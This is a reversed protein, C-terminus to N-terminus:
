QRYHGFTAVFEGNASAPTLAKCFIRDTVYQSGQEMGAIADDLASQQNLNAQKEVLSMNPEMGFLATDGTLHKIAVKRTDSGDKQLERALTQLTATTSALKAGMLMCSFAFLMLADAAGDLKNTKPDYGSRNLSNKMREKLVKASAKNESPRYPKCIATVRGTQSANRRYQAPTTAPPIDWYVLDGNQIRDPGNNCITYLGGFIGTFEPHRPENGKTDFKAGQGGAIGAFTLNEIIASRSGKMGNLASFATIMNSGVGGRRRGTTKIKTALCIERPLVWFSRDEMSATPWETNHAGEHKRQELGDQDLQLNYVVRGVNTIPQKGVGGQQTIDFLSDTM